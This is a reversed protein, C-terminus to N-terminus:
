GLLTVSILFAFVKGSLADALAIEIEYTEGTKFRTMKETFRRAAHNSGADKLM